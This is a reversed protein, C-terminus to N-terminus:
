LVKKRRTSTSDLTKRMNNNQTTDGSNYMKKNMRDNPNTMKKNMRDPPNEMKKNMSDQSYAIISITSFFVALTFKKM